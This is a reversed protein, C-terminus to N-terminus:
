TTVRTYDVAINGSGTIVLVAGDDSLSWQHRTPTSDIDHSYNSSPVAADVFAETGDVPRLVLIDGDLTANGQASTVLSTRGGPQDVWLNGTFAYSGDSHFEYVMEASEGDTSCWIGVLERPLVETGDTKEASTRQDTAVTENSPSTLPSACVQTAQQSSSTASTTTVVSITVGTMTQFNSLETTSACSVCSAGTLLVALAVAFTRRAIKGVVPGGGTM